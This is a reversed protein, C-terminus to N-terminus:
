SSTVAERKEFGKVSELVERSWGIGFWGVGTMGLEVTCGGFRPQCFYGFRV